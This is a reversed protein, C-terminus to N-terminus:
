YVPFAIVTDGPQIKQGPQVSGQVINVISYDEESTTVEVKGVIFTDRRIAFQIGPEINAKKGANIVAFGAEAEVQNVEGISAADRIKRQADSLNKERELEANQKAEVAAALMDTEAEVKVQDLQNSELEREIAAIKAELAAPVPAPAPVASRAILKRNMDREYLVDSDRKALETRLRTIEEAHDAVRQHASKLETMNQVAIILAIVLLVVTAGLSFKTTTNMIPPITPNPLPASRPQFEGFFRGGKM